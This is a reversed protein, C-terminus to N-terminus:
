DINGKLDIKLVVGDRILNDAKGNYVMGFDKRNISFEATGTLEKKTIRITAPFTIKKTVGRLTLNGAVVYLGKQAAKAATIALSVFTAKPYQTVHLFDEDKLHKELKPTWQDRKGENCRLTGTEVEFELGANIATNGNITIVGSSKPMDCTNSGTVKSGTFRVNGTLQITKLNAVNAAVAEDSPINKPDVKEEIVPTPAIPKENDPAESAPKKAVETPTAVATKDTKAPAPAPAPAEVKAKAVDKSPDKACGGVLMVAWLGILLAKM